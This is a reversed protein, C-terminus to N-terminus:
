LYCAVVYLFLNFIGSCFHFNFILFVIYLGVPEVLKPAKQFESYEKLAMAALDVKARLALM